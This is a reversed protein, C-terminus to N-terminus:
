ALAPTGPVKDDHCISDVYLKKLYERPNKPCDPAVLDPRCRYGWEIRGIIYPLSGGGHSMMIRLGPCEELVGGLILATGALATESPM